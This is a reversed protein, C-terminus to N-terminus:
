GYQETSTYISKASMSKIENKRKRLLVGSNNLVFVATLGIKQGQVFAHRVSVEKLDQRNAAVVGRRCIGPKPKIWLPQGNEAQGVIQYANLVYVDLHGVPRLKM